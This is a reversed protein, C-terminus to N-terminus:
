SQIRERRFEDLFALQHDMTQIATRMELFLNLSVWFLAAVGVFSLVTPVNVLRIPLIQDLAITLSSAVFMTFALYSLAAASRVRRARWRLNNLEADLYRRRLEPLEMTPETSLTAEMERIVVRMRDIVRSLRNNTSIILSGTATMFLAPAIMSSLVQYEPFSFM